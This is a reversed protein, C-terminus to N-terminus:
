KKVTSRFHKGYNQSMNGSKRFIKAKERHLDSFGMGKSQKNNMLQLLSLEVYKSMITIVSLPSRKEPM